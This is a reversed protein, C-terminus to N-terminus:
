GQGRNSVALSDANLGDFRVTWAIPGKRLTFVLAPDASDPDILASNLGEPGSILVGAPLPHSRALAQDLSEDGEFGYSTENWVVSLPRGSVLVDDSALQLRDAFRNAEIQVTTGRDVGGLGLVLAGSAIGVIALVVLVEMLSLGQRRGRRAM